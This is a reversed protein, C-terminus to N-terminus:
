CGVGQPQTVLETLIKSKPYRNRLHEARETFETDTKISTQVDSRARFSGNSHTFSVGLLGHLVAFVEGHQAHLSVAAALTAGARGIRRPLM